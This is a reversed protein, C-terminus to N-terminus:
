ALDIEAEVEYAEDEDEGDGGGEGDGEGKGLKKAGMRCIAVKEVPVNEMWVFDDYRDLIGRADVTLRERKRKGGGGGRNRGKVYITNVITAHLLLPRDEEAMLGAEQFASRLRECFPLLLSASSGGIDPTVVPATYLVTAKSAPQMSHLGRLTVSLLPPSPPPVPDSAPDADTAALTTAVAATATTTTVAATTTAAAAAAINTKNDVLGALIQRPVLSKLLAVAQDLGEDRPFSMVGLTLHVTGVPRVAQEPINGLGSDPSTVDAKFSGISAALQPRSAGTVLPICLFHTPPPRPPM